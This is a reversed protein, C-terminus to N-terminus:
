LFKSGFNSDQFYSLQSCFHFHSFLAHRICYCIPSSFTSPISKNENSPIYLTDKHNQETRCLEPFDETKSLMTPFSKKGRPEPLNISDQAIKTIQTFPQRNTPSIQKTTWHLSKLKKSTRATNTRMYASTLMSYQEKTNKFPFNNCSNNSPTWKDQLKMLNIFSASFIRLKEMKWSLPESIKTPKKRKMRIGTQMKTAIHCIGSFKRPIWFKRYLNRM